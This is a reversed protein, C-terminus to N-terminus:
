REEFGAFWLAAHARDPHRLTGRYVARRLGLMTHMSDENIDFGLGSSFIIPVYWVPGEAPVRAGDFPGGILKTLQGGPLFRRPEDWTGRSARSERPQRSVAGCMTVPAPSSGAIKLNHAQRSAEERGRLM